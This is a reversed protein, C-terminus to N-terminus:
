ESILKPLRRKTASCLVKKVVKLLDDNSFPRQLTADPKLWPKRAFERAPLHGTAMIVPVTIRASRLRAIMEVGTMNPMKNDIVVLDYNNGSQLAKWGAAGDKAVEINYGSSALIDVSLQRTDDDDDVVLIRHRPIRNLNPRSVPQKATAARAILRSLPLPANVKVVLNPHVHLNTIASIVAGSRDGKEIQLVQFPGKLENVGFYVARRVSRFNLAENIDATWVSDCRMFKGTKCNRLFIEVGAASEDQWDPPPATQGAIGNPAQLVKRVTALLEDLTYPKLLTADIQLWPHRSLEKAPITGSVLIVPLSMRAARLKKILEVGTVKPMNYDTILLHYHNLQLTDWAAAGNAVADVEYGSGVLAEVNLRRIDEDDEVVLVRHFLSMQYELTESAVKSAQSLKTAM